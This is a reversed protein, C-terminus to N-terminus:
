GAPTGAIAVPRHREEHIWVRIRVLPGARDDHVPSTAASSQGDILVGGRWRWRRCEAATVEVVVVDDVASVEVYQALGDRATRPVRLVVEIPVTFDVRRIQLYFHVRRPLRAAARGSPQMVALARARALRARAELGAHRDSAFDAMYSRAM